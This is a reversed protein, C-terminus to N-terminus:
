KSNFLNSTVILHILDALQDGRKRFQATLGGSKATVVANWEVRPERQPGEAAAAGAQPTQRLVFEERENRVFDADGEVELEAGNPLKLRVRHPNM